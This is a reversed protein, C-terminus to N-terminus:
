ANKAATAPGMVWTGSSPSPVRSEAGSRRAPPAHSRGGQHDPRHRDPPAETTGAGAQLPERCGRHRRHTRRARHPCAERHGRGAGKRRRCAGRAGPRSSGAARAQLRIGSTTPMGVLRAPLWRHPQCVSGGAARRAHIGARSLAKTVRERRSRWQEEALDDLVREIVRLYRECQERSRFDIAAHYQEVLGRRDGSVQPVHAADPYFGELEFQDASRASSTPDAAASPRGSRM